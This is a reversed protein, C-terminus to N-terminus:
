SAQKGPADFPTMTHSHTLNDIHIHWKLYKDFTLGLFTAYEKYQLIETGLKSKPFNSSQEPASLKSQLQFM